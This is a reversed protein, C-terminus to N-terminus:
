VRACVCVCWVGCVACVCVCVVRHGCAAAAARAGTAKASAAAAPPTPMPPATVAKAAPAAAVAAKGGPPRLIVATFPASAKLAARLRELVDAYPLGSVNDHGIKDIVDGKRMNGSVHAAGGDTVDAIYAGTGTRRRRWRAYIHSSVSWM